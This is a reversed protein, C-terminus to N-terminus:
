NGRKKIYQAPIGGVVTYPEINEIVVAAAAVVAGDGITVGQLIIVGTGIWCDKGIVIDKEISPQLRIPIERDEYSHMTSNIHVNPALLTDDGIQIRSNPGAVIFAREGIVVNNGITINCPYRCDVPFRISVGTGLNMGLRVIKRKHNYKIIILMLANILVCFIRLKHAKIARIVRSILYMYQM